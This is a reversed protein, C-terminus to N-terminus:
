RSSNWTRTLWIPPKRCDGLNREPWNLKESLRPIPDPPPLIEVTSNSNESHSTLLLLAYRIYVVQRRKDPLQTLVESKLRRILATSTLMMHLEPLNGSGRYDWGFKGEYANCYRVGFQHHSPFLDKKLANLQPFLEMPRSMAPTGSLLIARKANKLMACVAKLLVVVWPHIVPSPFFTFFFFFFFSVKSRKSDRSKLYHSEDAIIVKYPFDILHDGRSMLDYSVICFVSTKRPSQRSHLIVDIDDQRIELWNEIEKAWTFRLSSPCVVLVPWESQYSDCMVFFFFLSDM